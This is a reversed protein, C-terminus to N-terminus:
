TSPMAESLASRVAVLDVLAIRAADVRAQVRAQLGLAFLALIAVDHAVGDDVDVRVDDRRRLPRDAPAATRCASPSTAPAGWAGDLGQDRRHVVGADGLGGDHMRRGGVAEVVAVDDVAAVLVRLAQRRDARDVHQLRIRGLADAFPGARPRAPRRRNVPPLVLSKSGLSSSSGREKGAQSSHPRVPCASTCGSRGPRAAAPSASALRKGFTFMM